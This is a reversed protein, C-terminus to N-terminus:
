SAVEPATIHVGEAQLRRRLAPIDGDFLYGTMGLKAAAEINERRDDVFIFAEPPHGLTSCPHLYAKPDPKRLGTLCSIFGLEMFRSVGLQADLDRFWTPYNSLAHMPVGSAHLETLLAEIGDVFRYQAVLHAKLAQGDFSRGDVFFRKFLTEEDIEAREFQAWVRPSKQAFLEELSMGFFGPMHKSFPDVVVTDMLDWLIVKQM